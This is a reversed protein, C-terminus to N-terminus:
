IFEKSLPLECWKHCNRLNRSGYNALKDMSEFRNWEKNWECITPLYNGYKRYNGDWIYIFVVYLKTDDKPLDNPNKSLDHWESFCAMQKWRKLCERGEKLTDKHVQKIMDELFGPYSKVTDSSMFVNRYPIYKRILNKTYEKLQKSNM